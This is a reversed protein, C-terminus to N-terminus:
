TDDTLVRGRADTRYGVALSQGLADGDYAEGNDMVVTARDFYSQVQSRMTAARQDALAQQEASRQADGAERAEVQAAAQGTTSEVGSSEQYAAISAEVWQGLSGATWADGGAGASDPNYTDAIKQATERDVGRENVLWRELEYDSPPRGNAFPPSNAAM